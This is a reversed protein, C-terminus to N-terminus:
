SIRNLKTEIRVGPGMMEVREWDLRERLERYVRVCDREQEPTTVIILDKERHRYVILDTSM